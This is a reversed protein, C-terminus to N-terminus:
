GGVLGGFSLLRKTYGTKWFAQQYRDFLSRPNFLATLLGPPKAIYRQEYVNGFGEAHELDGLMVAETLTPDRLVEGLPQLALDPPISLFRFQQWVAGFDQVFDLAGRQVASAKAMKPGEFDNEELVPGVHGNRLAFRLVSGHPALHLFEFLEVCLKIIAHRSEPEGHECLYTAMEQGRECVARAKSFTGLYYGKIEIKRGSLSLLTSISDQLTGHWGIDVIGIRKRDLIGVRRFYDLIFPREGVAVRRIEDAISRFLTRLRAYDAGTRVRQDLSSFGAERVARTLLSPDLGIRELFQAVRLTSTGSVLFDMTREDLETIAPVNLARRSAYLYESPPAHEVWPSLRDYVQKLIQGDRSLFYLTEVRDEVARALLWTTFGSFLIGASIYGFEYWFPDGSEEHRTSGNMLLRRLITASYISAEVSGEGVGPSACRQLRHRKAHDLRRVREGCKEYLCTALGYRRAMTVDSDYRDGIHLIEQPRCALEKLMCEYLDGSSKTARLASSVFLYRFREYGCKHLIQRVVEFPLYMDSVFVVPRMIELCYRYIAYVEDNRTCGKVETAVELDKLAMATEHAVGSVEEMCKYIEDLTTETCGNRMWVRERALRESEVRVVRFRFALPGVTIRYWREVLDFLDAPEKVIRLVATDFVDFSVYGAQEVLSRVVEDM